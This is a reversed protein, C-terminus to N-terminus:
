WGVLAFVAVYLIINYAARFALGPVVSGSWERLWGLGLGLALVYPLGVLLGAHMLTWLTATVVVTPWAAVHIRLWGFLSM